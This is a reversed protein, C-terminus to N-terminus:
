LGLSISGFFSMGPKPQPRSIVRADGFHDPEFYRADLVNHVFLGITLDRWINKFRVGLDLLLLPEIEEMVTAGPFVWIGESLTPFRCARSLAHDAPLAGALIQSCSLSYDPRSADVVAPRNPDEMASKFTMVGTLEIREDLFALKWGLNAIHQAFNTLEGGAVTDDFVKTFAYNLWVEHGAQFRLRAAAEATALQRSSSNVYTRAEDQGIVNDLLSLAANARLYLDRVEGEDRLLFTNFELDISSSTEAELDPNGTYSIGSATNPNVNTSVISPPRLGQSAFLKIHTAEAAKWVLGGSGLVAAGFQSSVQLRVGASLALAPDVKWDAQVFGGGTIRDEDFIQRQEIKCKLYPDFADYEFGAPCAGLQDETWSTQNIGYSHDAFLELGALLTLEKTIRWDLDVAGGPRYIEQSVLELRVDRTHGLQGLVIPSAAYVGFPSEDIDWSVFYVRANLGVKDQAFRGSYSLIVSRVSDKGETVVGDDDGTLYNTGINSGGTAIARYETEFPIMWSLAVPGLQLRGATNLWWSRQDPIVTAPTPLYLTPGDPSPAPLAGIVKQVDMTLEAGDTAFWDVYVWLGVDESFKHSLGAGGKLALREGPGDGAGFIAIPGTDDPRRTVINVVGLLANSGWLVGGPGSTVEIREVMELPVKRDLTITNRVPEVINVGDLLVLITQPIGRAFSEKQWGNGDWRDGEFGPVTRLVENITRFGRERIQKATIVTVISPAEQITTRVKQAAIVLDEDSPGAKVIDQDDPAREDDVVTPDDADLVDPEPPGRKAHASPAAALLALVMLLRIPSGM